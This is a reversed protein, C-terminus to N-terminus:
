PCWGAEERDVAGCDQPFYEPGKDKREAIFAAFAQADFCPARLTHGWAAAAFKVDLTPDPTM